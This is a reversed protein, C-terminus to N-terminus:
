SHNVVTVTKETKKEIKHDKMVIRSFESYNLQNARIGEQKMITGIQDETMPQGMEDFIKKMELKDIYGSRDKDYKNFIAKLISGMHQVETEEIRMTTVSTQKVMKVRDDDDDDDITQGMAYMYERFSIKADRNMDTERFMRLIDWDSGKYSFIKLGKSLEEYTLFGDKDKDAERFWWVYEERKFVRKPSKESGM